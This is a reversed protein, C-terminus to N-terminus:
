QLYSFSLGHAADELVIGCEAVFHVLFHDLVEDVADLSVPAM